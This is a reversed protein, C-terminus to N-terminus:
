VIFYTARAAKSSKRILYWCSSCDSGETRLTLTDLTSSLTRSCSWSWSWFISASAFAFAYAGTRRSSITTIMMSSFAADLSWCPAERRAASAWITSRTWLRSSLGFARRLNDVEDTRKTGCALKVGSGVVSCRVDQVRLRIEFVIMDGIPGFPVDLHMRPLTGLLYSRHQPGDERRIARYRLPVSFPQQYTRSRSLRNCLRVQM